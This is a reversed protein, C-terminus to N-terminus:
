PDEVPDDSLKWLSGFGRWLQGALYRTRRRDRKAKARLHSNIEDGDADRAQRRQRLNMVIRTVGSGGKHVLTITGDDDVREVVAVHTLRDDLRRNGNRDHTNDFFAVDGPLPRRRKHFVGGDRALEHLAAGNLGHLDRGAAAYAADVLGSCDNRFTEDGVVLTPQGLFAELGHAVEVGPRHQRVQARTLNHDDGLAAIEARAARQHACGAATTGLVALAALVALVPACPAHPTMEGPNRELPGCM